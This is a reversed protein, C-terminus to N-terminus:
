LEEEEQDVHLYGCAIAREMARELAGDADLPGDVLGAFGVMMRAGGFPTLGVEVTAGPDFRITEGAGIAARRGYARRRDFRLRPNVEFFHFHSTVGIPVDGTNEVRVTVVDEFVPATPEDPEDPEDAVLGGGVPAPIVVLRTGDEFVAEVQVETVCDAVGPLVDGPGLVSRGAAVAEDLRGGDRAVECAADAVLAITEPVNLRLGRARRSRALEAATFLLLRDRETPTLHM